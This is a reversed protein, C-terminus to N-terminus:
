GCVPWPSSGSRAYLIEARKVQEAVSAAAPDGSGGVSAWTGMDFQFLGRYAGGGGIAAPNGGSECTAIAALHAPIVPAAAARKRAKKAKARRTAARMQERAEKRLKVKTLQRDVLTSATIDTGTQALAVPIPAAVAVAVLAILPLRRM